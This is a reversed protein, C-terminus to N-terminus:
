GRFSSRARSCWCSRRPCSARRRTCGTHAPCLLRVRRCRSCSMWQSFCSPIQTSHCFESMHRRTSPLSSRSLSQGRKQVLLIKTLLAVADRVVGPLFSGTMGDNTERRHVEIPVLRVNYEDRAKLLLQGDGDRPRKTEPAGNDLMHSPYMMVRDARSGLRHLSEFLMVSNCLYHSNTVYQTYAFRSWNVAADKAVDSGGPVAEEPTKQTRLRAWEISIAHRRDIYLILVAIALTIPVWLRLKRSSIIEQIRLRM